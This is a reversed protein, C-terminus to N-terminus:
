EPLGETMAEDIAYIACAFEDGYAEDNRIVESVISRIKDYAELRRKIERGAPDVDFLIALSM